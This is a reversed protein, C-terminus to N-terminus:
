STLSLHHTKMLTSRSPGLSFYQWDNVFGLDGGLSVNFDKIRQLLALMGLRGNPSQQLAANLSHQISMRGGANSTPYREAHRSMQCLGGPDNKWLYFFHKQSYWTCKSLM